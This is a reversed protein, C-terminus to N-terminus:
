RRKRCYRSRVGLYGGCCGALVMIAFKILATIGFKFDSELCGIIMIIFFVAAGIIAGLVLGNKGASVACIYGGIFCGIGVAIISLPAVANEAICEIVSFVLSIICVMILTAVISIVVGMVVPRVCSNGGKGRYARTPTM